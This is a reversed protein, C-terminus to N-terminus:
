LNEIQVPEVPDALDFHFVKSYFYLEGDFARKINKAQRFGHQEGEFSVYATPLGKKKVADFMMLSQAPPVVKDDLGQFLILPCALRDVFHIPSRALYIDRRAPYPGILNDLYRSEFKHTDTALTELDSIGYYSAGAKFLDTFVLAALTTYGGASGGRIAVRNPDVDGRQILYRAANACDAVDVIGWQANLRQRYARGYGTSGGYDVDVVAFGRSTWYQRGLTLTTSTSDTPGGHSLVLLPPKEGPPAAFDRNRPAYYFAHASLNNETPFEIAQPISLYGEDIVLNNAKRLVTLQGTALDLSVVQMPQIPSGAIFLVCGPSAHIASLDEYPLDLYEVALTMTNLLAMRGHGNEEFTCVIRESSEFAYTSVGFSWAPAGFESNKPYLSEVNNERLRYLNWWGTKDSIFHLVGDPSWQPQFLSEAIGGAVQTSSIIEGRDNLEGIWLETGDWPMNPYNWTLWCLRKGDPSLRPNSYFNNGSVLIKGGLDDGNVDLSVITNVAEGPATHDERVCIIRKRQRDIVGDAYRLDVAPTLPDPVSDPNIRYVRQDAFNSFYIVGQDILFEGGGYEHVRTRMNFSAPTVDSPNGDNWKVLVMRGRESPRSELWYLDNQDIATQHLGISESVILDSSIPSKWSGFHATKM